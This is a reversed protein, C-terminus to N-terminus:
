MENNYINKYIKHTDNEHCDNRSMKNHVNNQSMKTNQIKVSWHVFVM